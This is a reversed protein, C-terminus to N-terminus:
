HTTKENLEENRGGKTNKKPIKKHCNKNKNKKLRRIHQLQLCM